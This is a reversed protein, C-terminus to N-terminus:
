VEEELESLYDDDASSSSYSDGDDDGEDDGDDGHDDGNDNGGITKQKKPPV